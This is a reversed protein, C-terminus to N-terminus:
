RRGCRRPCTTSTPGRQAEPPDGRHARGPPRGAGEAQRRRHAAGQGAPHGRRDHRRGHRVPPRDAARGAGDDHRRGARRATRPCRERRARPRPLPTRRLATPRHGFRTPTSAVYTAAAIQASEKMVDGLQGTVTLGGARGAHRPRSSSCTAASRRSPWAPPWAPVSTREASRPTSAQAPRPLERAREDADVAVPADPGGAVQAARGQAAAQRARARPEPRRGRAHLRHRRERLAGDTVAVESPGYATALSRGRCCTTAPSPSRRTARHLRRSAGDGHPRAVPGPITSSCTPPPSSCRRRLPRPRGGPLPRPLHPEPRPRAGRAARLVPDGRWDAGVKDVEDLLFVPNM